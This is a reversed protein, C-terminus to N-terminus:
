QDDVWWDSLEDWVGAIKPLDMWVEGRLEEFRARIPGICTACAGTCDDVLEERLYEGADENADICDLFERSLPDGGLLGRKAEHGSYALSGIVEECVSAGRICGAAAERFESCLEVMRAGHAVLQEKARFVLEADDRSLREPTGDARAAGHWVLAPDLQCLAYLGLPVLDPEYDYTSDTLMGAPRGDSDSGLMRVFNFAEIAHHAHFAHRARIEARKDWLSLDRPFLDSLSCLASDVLREVRYKVGTRLWAALVPFPTTNTSRYDAPKTDGYMFRLLKDLDYAKDSLYITVADAWGPSGPHMCSQAQSAAMVMRDLISSHRAIISQHVRFKFGQACLVVNGDSYWMPQDNTM